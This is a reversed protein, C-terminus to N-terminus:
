RLLAQLNRPFSNLDLGVRQLKENIRGAKRGTYEGGLLYATEDQSFEGRNEYWSLIDKNYPCVRQCFMCGIIANHWMPKVWNPFVEEATKENFYTLCREAKLLFREETIAGTPCAKICKKCGDCAELVKPEQWQDESEYDTFFATLRHFSGYKPIYTINNLGYKALGSRVALQKYPLIAHVFSYNKGLKEKLLGRLRRNIKVVDNYTPPVVVPISKGQWNFTIRIQPQPVAVVAIFKAKPLSAPKQYRFYSLYAKFIPEALLGGHRLSEIKERIEDLHTISVFSVQCDDLKFSSVFDM